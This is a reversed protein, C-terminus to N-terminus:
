EETAGLPLDFDEESESEDSGVLFGEDYLESAEDNRGIPKKRMSEDESGYYDEEDDGIDDGEFEALEDESDMEYNIIGQENMQFPNRGNAAHIPKTFSFMEFALWSDWIEINILRRNRKGTNELQEVTLDM